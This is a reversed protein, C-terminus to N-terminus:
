LFHVSLSFPLISSIISLESFLLGILFSPFKNYNHFPLCLGKRMFPFLFIIFVFSMLLKMASIM